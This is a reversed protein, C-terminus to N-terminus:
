ISAVKVATYDLPKYELMYEDLFVKFTNVWVKVPSESWDRQELRMTKELIQEFLAYLDKYRISKGDDMALASSYFSFINQRFEKLAKKFVVDVLTDKKSDENDLENMKKLLFEDMSKLDSASTIIQLSDNQWQVPELAVNSIKVSRKRKVKPSPEKNEKFERRYIGSLEPSRPPTLHHPGLEEGLQLGSIMERNPAEQEAYLELLESQTALKERPTKKEGQKGKVWFRMKARQSRGDPALTKQAAALKGIEGQSMTKHLKTQGEGSTFRQVT